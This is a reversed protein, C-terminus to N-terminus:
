AAQKLTALLAAGKETGKWYSEHVVLGRKAMNPLTLWHFRVPVMGHGGLCYYQNTLDSIGYKVAAELLKLERPKLKIRDSM